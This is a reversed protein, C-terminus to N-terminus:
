ECEVYYLTIWIRYLTFNTAIFSISAIKKSYPLLNKSYLKPALDTASTAGIKNRHAESRYTFARM